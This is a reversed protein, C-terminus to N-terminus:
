ERYVYVKVEALTVGEDHSSLVAVHRVFVGEELIINGIAGYPPHHYYRVTWEGSNLYPNSPSSYNSTLIYVKQLRSRNENRNYLEINTVEYQEGLDVMWWQNAKLETRSFDFGDTNGDVAKQALYDSDAYNSSQKAPKNLALNGQCETVIKSFEYTM